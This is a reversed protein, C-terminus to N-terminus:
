EGSTRTDPFTRALRGLWQGLAGTRLDKEPTLGLRVIILDKTPVVLTYQGEFGQASFGDRM